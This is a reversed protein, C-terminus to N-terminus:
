HQRTLTDRHRNPTTNSNKMIAPCIMTMETCQKRQTGVLQFRNTGMTYLYIHQKHACVCVYVCVYMFVCVCLNHPKRSSPFLPVTCYLQNSKFHKYCHKLSPLLSMTSQLGCMEAESVTVIDGTVQGAFYM